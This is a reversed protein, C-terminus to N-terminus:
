AQDHADWDCGKRRLSLVEDCRFRLRGGRKAPHLAGRAVLYFLARRSIGLLRVTEDSTLRSHASVRRQYIRGDVLRRV